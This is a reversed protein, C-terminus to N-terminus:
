LIQFPFSAEVATGATNRAIITLTLNHSIFFPISPVRYSGEFHGVDTKTMNVSFGGIRIEVSAVNSSALVIGTVIDGAHPTTSSIQYWLIEPPAEAPLMVITPTPAPTPSPLATPPFTPTPAPSPSLVPTAAPTVGPAASPAPPANAAPQAVAAGALGGAFAFIALALAKM